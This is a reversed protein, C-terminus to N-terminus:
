PKADSVEPKKTTIHWDCDGYAACDEGGLCPTKYGPECNIFSEGICCPALDSLQCGCEDTVLGDYGNAKLYEKVIDLVSM